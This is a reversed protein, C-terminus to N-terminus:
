TEGVGDVGYSVDITWDRRKKKYSVLKYSVLSFKEKFILFLNLFQEPQVKFDNKKLDM